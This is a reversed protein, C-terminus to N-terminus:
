ERTRAIHRRNFAIILCHSGMRTMLCGNEDKDDDEDDDTDTDDDVDGFVVTNSLM